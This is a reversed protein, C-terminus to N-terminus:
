IKGKILKHGKGGWDFHFSNSAFVNETKKKPPLPFHTEANATDSGTYLISYPVSILLLQVKCCQVQSVENKLSQIQKSSRIKRKEMKQKNTEIWKWNSESLAM